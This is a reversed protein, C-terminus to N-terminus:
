ESSPFLREVARIAPGAIASALRGSELDQKAYLLENKAHILSQLQTIRAQAKWYDLGSLMPLMARLNDLEYILKNGGHVTEDVHVLIDLTRAPGHLFTRALMGESVIREVERRRDSSSAPGFLSVAQELQEIGPRNEGALWHTWGYDRLTIARGVVNDRNFQSEALDYHKAAEKHDAFHAAVQGARHRIRPSLEASETPEGYDKTDDYAMGLFFRARDYDGGNMMYQAHKVLRRTQQISM